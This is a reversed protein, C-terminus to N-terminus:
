LEQSQFRLIEDGRAEPTQPAWNKCDEPGKKRAAFRAEEGKLSAGGHLCGGSASRSLALVIGRLVRVPYFDTEWSEDSPLCQSGGQVKGSSGKWM